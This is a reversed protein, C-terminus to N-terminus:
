KITKLTGFKALYMYGFCKDASMKSLNGLSSYDAKSSLTLEYKQGKYTFDTVLTVNKAHSLANMVAPTYSTWGKKSANRKVTSGAKANNIAKVTNDNYVCFAPLTYSYETYGCDCRYQMLGDKEETAPSMVTWHLFHTHVPQPDPKPEEKKEEVPTVAASYIKSCVGMQAATYVYSEDSPIVVVSVIYQGDNMNKVSVTQANGAKVQYSPVGDHNAALQSIMTSLSTTSYPGANEDLADVAATYPVVYATGDASSVLQFTSEPDGAVFDYMKVFADKGDTGSKAQMLHGSTYINDQGLMEVYSVHEKKDADEVVVYLYMAYLSQFESMDIKDKDVSVTENAQCTGEALPVVNSLASCITDPFLFQSPTLYVRYKGAVNPVFVSHLVGGDLNAYVPVNSDDEMVSDDSLTEAEATEAAMVPMASLCPGAAFLGAAIFIACRKANM